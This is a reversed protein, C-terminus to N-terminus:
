RSNGTCPDLRISAPRSISGTTPPDLVSRLGEVFEGSRGNALQQGGTRAHEDLYHAAGVALIAMAMGVIAVNSVLSATEDTRFRGFINM